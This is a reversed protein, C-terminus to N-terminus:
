ENTDNLKNATEGNKKAKEKRHLKKIINFNEIKFIKKVLKVVIVIVIIIVIYLIFYPINIIFWIFFEKIGELVDKVNEVFGSAIRELAGEPEPVTLDEVESITLNVTSYNVKNDFTRLQSEMSDIQYRIYTLRDEITIIEDITEAMELLEMLRQQEACLAKKHSELDVYTLTVDEVNQSQSVVNSIGSVMNIFSNLKSEPIRLTYDANRNSRYSYSYKYGNYSYSSEIYGGLSSVTEDIFKLLSDFEKTEVDIDVTKILKRSSNNVEEVKDPSSEENYIENEGAYYSDTSMGFSDYAQESTVMSSADNGVTYSSSGCGCYVIAMSSLVVFTKIVRILKKNKKM